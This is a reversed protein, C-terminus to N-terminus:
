RRVRGRDVLPGCAVARLGRKVDKEIYPLRNDPWKEDFAWYNPNRTYEFSSGLVWDTMEYPGTGVAHRWDTIGGYQDVVEPPQMLMQYWDLILNLARLKPEQLKFVVTHDGTAEVSEWPM